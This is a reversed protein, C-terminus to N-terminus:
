PGTPPQDQWAALRWPPQGLPRSAALLFVAVM